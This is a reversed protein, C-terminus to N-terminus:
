SPPLPALCSFVAYHPAEIPRSRLLPRKQKFNRVLITYMNIMDGMHAVRRAWGRRSKILMIINASACLDHLKEHNHRRWCGAVEQMKLGFM